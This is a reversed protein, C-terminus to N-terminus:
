ELIMMFDATKFCFSTFTIKAIVEYILSSKLFSPM